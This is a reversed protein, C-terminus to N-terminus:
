AAPGPSQLGGATASGLLPALADLTRATAGRHATAFATGAGGVARRRVPDELLSLAATIAGDADAVRIAAGAAVAAAAAEAFNFDHPGILVPCGAACAEILNQAGYPLLSGGILAVDALAYWAPMEGMSDGLLVDCAGADFAPDDLAARREHRLGSRALLADVDDFRQPHRPVLVLLPVPSRPLTGAAVQGPAVQGPAVQGPAGQGPAVQGPAVPGPAVPGPAVRGPAVQDPAVQGPAVQGPGVSAPAGPEPAPTAGAATARRWARLVLAEEGDRSSAVLVVPRAGLKDRWAHGRSVMAPPPLNDFKLNGTVADAGRGLRALREADAASQALVLALRRAAPVILRRHRLGRRLSKESLRANVMAVPVRAAAAAAMLNPWLETELLVGVAPRWARLFRRQAWPQDYPLYAQRVSDGFLERGTQRGTPTMHTLLIEADPRARRLAAVLPQAARTEGVSVAHIWILPERSQRTAFRGFREGWHALYEPQRMSRLLLYGFVLPTALLWALSYFARAVRDDPDQADPRGRGPMPPAHGPDPDPAKERQVDPVDTVDPGPL